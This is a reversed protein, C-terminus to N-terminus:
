FGVPLTKTLNIRISSDKASGLWNEYILATQVELYANWSGKDAPIVKGFRVGIPMYVEESDWDYQIVMDGNGVYWGEGLQYNLFPAIGLPNTDSTGVPLTQPDIARWSQTLLVGYFWKGSTNVVAGALGYGWEDRAVSEDGPLTVLPGLGTRGTGWDWKKPVILGFLETNGLGSDGTRLNEYHRLTLRPLLTFTEFVFPAVIRLQVFNDLGPARPQGNVLDDKWDITEYAFQFSWQTATSDLAKSVDDQQGQGAVAGSDTTADRDEDQAWSQGSSIALMAAIIPLCVLKKFGTTKLIEWVNFSMKNIGTPLPKRPNSQNVDGGMM